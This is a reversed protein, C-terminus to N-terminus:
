RENIEKRKYIYWVFRNEAYLTNILEFDNKARALRKFNSGWEPFAEAVKFDPSWSRQDPILLQKDVPWASGRLCYTGIIVYRLNPLERYFEPYNEVWDIVHVRPDFNNMWYLAEFSSINSNILVLGAGRDGGSGSSGAIIEVVKRTIKLKELNYFPNRMYPTNGYSSSGFVPLVRRFRYQNNYWYNFYSLTYYQSGAFLVLIVILRIKVRRSRLQQIGWASIVALAPLVPMLFREHKVVFLLSFLLVPVIIWLLFFMRFKTKSRAFVVLSVVAIATFVLGLSDYALSRLNYLFYKWDYMRDVTGSELFKVNSLSHLVLSNWALKVRGM